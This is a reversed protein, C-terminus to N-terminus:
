RPATHAESIRRGLEAAVIESVPMELHSGPVEIIDLGCLAMGAWGYEANQGPM